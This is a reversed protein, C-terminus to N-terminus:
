SKVRLRKLKVLNSTLIQNLILKIYFYQNSEVEKIKIVMIDNCCSTM